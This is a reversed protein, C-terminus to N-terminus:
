SARRLPAREAVPEAGVDHEDVLWGCRACPEDGLDTALPAGCPEWSVPGALAAVPGRRRRGAADTSTSRGAPHHDSTTSV